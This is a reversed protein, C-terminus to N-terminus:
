QTVRLYVGGIPEADPVNQDSPLHDDPDRRRDIRGGANRDLHDVKPSPTEDGSQDVRVDVDGSASALRSGGGLDGGHREGAEGGRPDGRDDAQQPGVVRRARGGLEQRPDPSEVVLPDGGVRERAAIVDRRRGQGSAHAPVDDVDVLDQADALERDGVV